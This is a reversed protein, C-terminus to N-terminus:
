DDKISSVLTPNIYFKQGTPIIDRELEVLPENSNVANYIIAQIDSAYGRAFHIDGNSMQIKVHTM